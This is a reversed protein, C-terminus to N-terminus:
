LKTRSEESARRRVQSREAVVRAASGAAADSGQGAGVSGESGDSGREAGEAGGVAGSASGGVGYRGRGGRQQLQAAVLWGVQSRLGAVQAGLFGM